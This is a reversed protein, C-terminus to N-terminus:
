LYNTYSVTTSKRKFFCTNKRCIKAFSFTNKGTFSSIVKKSTNESVFTWKSHLRCSSMNLLRTVPNSIGLNLDMISISHPSCHNGGYSFVQLQSKRLKLRKLVNSCLSGFYHWYMWFYVAWKIKDKIKPVLFWTSFWYLPWCFWM